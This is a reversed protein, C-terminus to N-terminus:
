TTACHATEKRVNRVTKPIAIASAPLTAGIATPLPRRRRFTDPNSRDPDDNREACSRLHVDSGAQDAALECLGDRLLDDDLVVGACGAVDAALQDSLGGRITVRQQHGAREDRKQRARKPRDCHIGDGRERRDALEGLRRHTITTWGDSLTFLRGSSM